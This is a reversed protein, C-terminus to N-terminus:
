HLKKCYNLINLSDSTIYINSIFKSKKAAKITWYILPKNNLKKLNKNKIILQEFNSNM